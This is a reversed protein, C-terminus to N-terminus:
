PQPEVFLPLDHYGDVGAQIGDTWAQLANFGLREKAENQLYVMSLDLGVANRGLERAVQLTTASGAFPDLVIGGAPCGAKICIEVLAPPYTAFHAGPYPCTTIEWVSRKNRMEYPGHSDWRENSGTYTRSGVQDQKRPRVGNVKATPMRKQEESARAKRDDDPYKSPEMIAKHDYFYRASKSLLFVYEHARTTRDTVSECMANPKNWINDMRLYWGDARLALATMWPIGVLDKHKYGPLSTRNPRDQCRDRGNSYKPDITNKGGADTMYSDGIVLWLTGDDRLVRRVERFVAVMNQVFGEPTPEQGLQGPVNYDRLGWYPPSTVCCNVSNEKLPIHLANANVLQIM